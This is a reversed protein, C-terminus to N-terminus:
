NDVLSKTNSSLLFLERIMKFKIIRFVFIFILSGFLMLLFGLKFDHILYKILINQAIIFITFGAFKLLNMYNVKIKFIHVVLIIQLVAM